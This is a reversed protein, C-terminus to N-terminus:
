RSEERQLNVVYEPKAPTLGLAPGFVGEWGGDLWGVVSPIGQNISNGRRKKQM